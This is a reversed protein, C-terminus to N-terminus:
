FCDGNLYIGFVEKGHQEVINSNINIIDVYEIEVSPTGIPQIWIELEDINGRKQELSIIVQKLDKVKIVGM